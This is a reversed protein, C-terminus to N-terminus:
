KSRFSKIRERLPQLLTVIERGARDSKIIWQDCDDNLNIYIAQSLTTKVKITTSGGDCLSQNSRNDELYGKGGLDNALLEIKRWLALDYFVVSKSYLDRMGGVYHWDIKGTSYILIEDGGLMSGSYYQLGIATDGIDERNTYSLACGSLFLSSLLVLIRM